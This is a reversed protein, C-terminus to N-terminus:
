RFRDPVYSRMVTIGFGAITSVIAMYQLHMPKIGITNGVLFSTATLAIQNSFFLVFQVGMGGFGYMLIERYSVYKGLPPTKWHVALTNVASVAKQRVKNL